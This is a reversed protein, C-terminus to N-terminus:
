YCCLQLEAKLGSGWHWSCQLFCQRLTGLGCFYVTWTAFLSLLNSLREFDDPLLPSYSLQDQEKPYSPIKSTLTIMMRQCTGRFSLSARCPRFTSPNWWAAFLSVLHFANGWPLYEREWECVCAVTARLHSCSFMSQPFTDDSQLRGVCSWWMSKNSTLHPPWSMFTREWPQHELKMIKVWRTEIWLTSSSIWVLQPIRRLLSAQEVRWRLLKPLPEHGCLRGSLIQWWELPILLIWFPDFHDVPNLRM